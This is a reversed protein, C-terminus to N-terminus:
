PWLGISYFRFSLKRPLWIGSNYSPENWKLFRYSSAVNKEGKYEKNARFEELHNWGDNQM